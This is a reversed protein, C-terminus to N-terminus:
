LNSVSDKDEFCQPLISDPKWRGNTDCHYYGSLPIESSFTFGPPCTPYCRHQDDTVNCAVYGNM